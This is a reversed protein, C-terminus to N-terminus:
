PWSSPVYGTSVGGNTRCVPPEGADPLSSVTYNTGSMSFSNPLATSTTSRLVGFGCANISLNRTADGPLTIAVGSGVSKNVIVIQGNPTKFNSTRAEAFTGNTCAPLVQTALSTADIATGDVKLGDWSGSSPVSIRVEGCAGVIRATSREVSGLELQVRSNATASVYVTTVGDKMVKYVNETGYPIAQAAPSNLAAIAIGFAAIFLKQVKRM